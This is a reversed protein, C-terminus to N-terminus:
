LVKVIEYRSDIVSWNPAFFNNITWYSVGALNYKNRLRMFMELLVMSDIGTSVALVFTKNNFEITKDKFFSLLTDM